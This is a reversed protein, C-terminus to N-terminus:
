HFNESTIKKLKRNLMFKNFEKDLFEKLEAYLSMSGMNYTMGSIRKKWSDGDKFYCSVYDSNSNSNLGLINIIKDTYDNDYFDIEWYGWSNKEFIM